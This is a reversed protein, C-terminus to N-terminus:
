GHAKEWSITYYCDDGTSYKMTKEVKYGLMTLQKAVDDPLVETRSDLTARPLGHGVNAKIRDMIDEITFIKVKMLNRAQEASIIESM